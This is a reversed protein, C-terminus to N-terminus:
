KKKRTLTVENPFLREDDAYKAVFAQL